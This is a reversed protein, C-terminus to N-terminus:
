QDSGEVRNKILELLRPRYSADAEAPGRAFAGPLRQLRRGWELGYAELDRGALIQPDLLLANRIEFVIM